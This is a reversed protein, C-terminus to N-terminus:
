RPNVIAAVAADLLRRQDAATLAGSAIARLAIGDTVATLTRAMDDANGHALGLMGLVDSVAGEWEGYLRSCMLAHQPNTTASMSFALWVSSEIRRAEDMPLGESLFGTLHDLGERDAAQASARERAASVTVEFTTRLLDERDRFHHTITGTTIGMRSAIERMSAHDLGADAIVQAAVRAIEIRRNSM